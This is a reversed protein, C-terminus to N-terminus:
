EPEKCGAGDWDGIYEYVENIRRTTQSLERGELIIKVKGLDHLYQISQDIEARSLRAGQMLKDRRVSKRDAIWKEVKILMRWHEPEIVQDVVRPSNRATADLIRAADEIDEREIVTGDKYGQASILLATKLLLTNFRSTIFVENDDRMQRKLFEEHWSEHFDDAGKSLSFEGVSKECIWALRKALEENSPGGVVARPKRYPRTPRDRYVMITRSLFGDGMAAEPISERLGAITTGGILTTYSGKVTLRGHVKTSYGFEKKNDYLGLLISILGENYQQKGLFVSLEDACLIVAGSRNIFRTNGEVEIEIRAKSWTAIDMLLKESTIKDRFILFQKLKKLTENQLFKTSNELVDMGFNIVTGKGCLGPPAVLIVYLNPYFCGLPSWDIWADRRICSSVVFLGTWLCFETPSTLGRSAYVFDTLFGERRPVLADWPENPWFRDPDKESDYAHLSDDPPPEPKRKSM